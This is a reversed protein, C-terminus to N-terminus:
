EYLRNEIGRFLALARVPAFHEGQGQGRNALLHEVHHDAQGIGIENPM